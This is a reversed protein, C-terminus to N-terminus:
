AAFPNVRKKRVSYSVREKFIALKEHFFTPVAYVLM